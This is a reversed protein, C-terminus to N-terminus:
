LLILHSIELLPHNNFNNSKSENVIFLILTKWKTKKNSYCHFLLNSFQLYIPDLNENYVNYVHFLM